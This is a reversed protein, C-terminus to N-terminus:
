DEWPRSQVERTKAAVGGIVAGAKAKASAVSLERIHFVPSLKKAVTAIPSRANISIYARRCSVAYASAPLNVFPVLGKRSHARLNRHAYCM